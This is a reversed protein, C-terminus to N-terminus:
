DKLVWSGELAVISLRHLARTCVTYFLQRENDKYDTDRTLVLIVADFELGKSLYSPIVAIGEKIDAEGDEIFYLDSMKNIIAHVHKSATLTRCIIAVSKCGTEKVNDVKEFLIRILETDTRFATVEPVRGNRGFPMCSFDAVRSAYEMIEVTSRYSKDLEIYDIPKEGLLIAAAKLDGIGFVPNINQRFDGLLTIGCDSYLKSFLCFAMESYDQAEDIILHKVINDRSISGLLIMLYLLPAQDIYELTGNDKYDKCLVSYLSVVDVSLMKQMKRRIPEIDETVAMRARARIEKENVHVGSNAIDEVKLKYLEKEYNWIREEIISIIRSFRPVIPMHRFTVKFLEELEEEAMFIIDNFRVDEFSIISDQFTNVLIELDKAFTKSAKVNMTKFMESQKAKNDPDSELVPEPKKEPEQKLLNENYILQEEIMMSYTGFTHFRDSLHKIALGTLTSCPIEDEGLHPLVSSIYNSFMNNPTYLLLNNVELNDRYRYLLYAARHLAVSTKGSGAPGQVALVRTIGSRIARNQERQITTVITKMRNDSSGALIEQLIEDEIAISSDFMLKMIGNEIRYQRKLTLEGEVLGGPCSYQAKGTEFDYFMSSIPARWDYILPEDENDQKFGHIGIYFSEPKSDIEAFDIRAFYPSQILREYRGIEKVSMSSAHLNNKLFSIHQLFSVISDLENRLMGIDEWMDKNIAKEEGKLDSRKTIRVELASKLAKEVEYLRIIENDWDYHNDM